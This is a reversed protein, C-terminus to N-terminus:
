QALRRYLEQHQSLTENMATSFDVAKSAILDHVHDRLVRTSFEEVTEGTATAAQQLAKAVASEINLTISM